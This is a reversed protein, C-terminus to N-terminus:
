KQLHGPMGKKGLAVSVGSSPGGGHSESLHALSPLHTKDDAFDRCSGQGGEYM